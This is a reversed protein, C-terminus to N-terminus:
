VLFIKRERIKRIEDKRRELNLLMKNFVKDFIKSLLYFIVHYKKSLCEFCALSFSGHELKIKTVAGSQVKWM